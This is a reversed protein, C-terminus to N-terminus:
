LIRYTYTINCTYIHSAIGMYPISHKALMNRIAIILSDRLCLRNDCTNLDIEEGVVIHIGYSIRRCTLLYIEYSDNTIYGYVYTFLAYM